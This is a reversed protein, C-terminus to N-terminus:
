MEAPDCADGGMQTMMNQMMGAMTQSMIRPIARTALAVILASAVAGFFAATMYGMKTSGTDHM